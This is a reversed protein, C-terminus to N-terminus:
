ARFRSAFLDLDGTTHFSDAPPWEFELASSPFPLITRVGADGIVRKTIVNINKAEIKNKSGITVVQFVASGVALTSAYGVVSNVPDEEVRGRMDNGHIGLPGDPFGQRDFRGLYMQTGSPSILTKRFSEREEPTYFPITGARVAEFVMATKMLWPILLAMESMQIPGTDHVAMKM